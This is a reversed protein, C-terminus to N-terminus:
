THQENKVRRRGRERLRQPPQSRLISAAGRETESTRPRPQQRIRRGHALLRMDATSLRQRRHSSGGQHRHGAGASGASSQAPHGSPPPLHGGREGGHEHNRKVIHHPQQGKGYVPALLPEHTEVEEAHLEHHQSSTQRHVELNQEGLHQRGVHGDILEELPKRCRKQHEIRRIQENFPPALLVTSPGRCSGHELLLLPRDVLGGPLLLLPCQDLEEHDRAAAADVVECDVGHKQHRM